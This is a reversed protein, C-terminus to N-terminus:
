SKLVTSRYKESQCMKMSVKPLLMIPVNKVENCKLIQEQSLQARIGCICLKTIDAFIDLALGM